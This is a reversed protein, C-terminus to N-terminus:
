VAARLDKLRDAPPDPLNKTLAECVARVSHQLHRWTSSLINVRRYNLSDVGIVGSRQPDARGGADRGCRSRKFRGKRGARGIRGAAKM